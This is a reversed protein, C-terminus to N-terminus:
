LSAIDDLFPFGYTGGNEQDKTSKYGKFITSAMREELKLKM